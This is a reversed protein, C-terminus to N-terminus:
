IVDIRFRAMWTRFWIIETKFQVMTARYQTMETKFVFHSTFAKKNRSKLLGAVQDILYQYQSFEAIEFHSYYLPLQVEHWAIKNQDSIMSTIESWVSSIKFDITSKMGCQVGILETVM